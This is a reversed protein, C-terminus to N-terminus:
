RMQSLILHKMLTFHSPLASTKQRNLTNLASGDMLLQLDISKWDVKYPTSDVCKRSCYKLRAHKLKGCALCKSQPQEEKPWDSYLENFRMVTDPIITIKDHVERHCNACIMVCKRLESVITKWNAINSGSINFDKTTDDLHHFELARKCKKYGCLGCEDGFASIARNRMKNRWRKVYTYSM